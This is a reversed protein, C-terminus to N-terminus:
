CTKLVSTFTFAANRELHPREIKRTLEVAFNSMM